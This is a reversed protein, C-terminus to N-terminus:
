VCDHAHGEHDYYSLGSKPCGQHHGSSCLSIDLPAPLHSAVEVGHSGTRAGRVHPCIFAPLVCICTSPVNGRARKATEARMVQQPPSGLPRSCRSLKLHASPLNRPQSLHTPLRLLSLADCRHAKMLTFLIEAPPELTRQPGDSRHALMDSDLPASVHVRM